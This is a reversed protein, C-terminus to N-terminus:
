ESVLGCLSPALAATDTRTSGVDETAVKRCLDVVSTVPIFYVRKEKEKWSAVFVGDFLETDETCSL